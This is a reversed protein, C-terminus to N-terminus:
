KQRQLVVGLNLQDNVDNLRIHQACVLAFLAM